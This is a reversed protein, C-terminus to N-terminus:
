WFWPTDAAGNKKKEDDQDDDPDDTEAPDPDSTDDQDDDEDPDAGTDDDPDEDEDPKEMVEDALGLRICDDASLFTEADLMAQLEDPDLKDGAKDTYIKKCSEMLKDMDDATKRLEAANGCTFTWCNHIMMQAAKGIRVPDGAMAIVSAVSAALGVVETTVKKGSCELLHYVSLGEYVDGGYSNIRVRVTNVTPHDALFAAIKKPGVGRVNGDWDEYEGVDDFLDLIAEEDNDANLEMRYAPCSRMKKM